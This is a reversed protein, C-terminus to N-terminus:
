EQAFRDIAPGDAGIRPREAGCEFADRGVRDHDADGAVHQERPPQLHFQMAFQLGRAGLRRQPRQVRDVAVVGEQGVLVPQRLQQATRAGKAALGLEPRPRAEVAHAHLGHAFPADAHDAAARDTAAQELHDRALLTGDGVAVAHLKAHRADRYAVEALRPVRQGCADREGVPREFEHAIWFHVHDDLDGASRRHLGDQRSGEGRALRDDRGVLRQQRRLERVQAHQRLAGGSREVAFGRGGGRQRDDPVQAMARVLDITEGANQVAGAVEDHRADFLRLEREVLGDGFRLREAQGFRIRRGIEVPEVRGGLQRDQGVARKARPHTGVPEAHAADTLDLGGVAVQGLRHAAADPEDRAGRANVAREVHGDLRQQQRRPM